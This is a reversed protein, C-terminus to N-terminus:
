KVFMHAQQVYKGRSCRQTRAHKFMRRELGPAPSFLGRRSLWCADRRENAQESTAALAAQGGM